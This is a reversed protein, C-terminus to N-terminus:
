AAAGKGLGLVERVKDVVSRADGGQKAVAEGAEVAQLQRREMESRTDELRGKALMLRQLSLAMTSLDKPDIQDDMSRAAAAEFLLQGIQQVAADAIGLGGSQRAAEMVANAMQSAGSTKQISLQTRYDALWRWVANRSVVYGKAQLWERCDDITRGPDRAFDEFAERDEDHGVLVEDVRFQPGLKAM